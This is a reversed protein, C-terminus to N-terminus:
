DDMDGMQDLIVAPGRMEVGRLDALGGSGRGDGRPHVNGCAPHDGDTVVQVIDFEELPSTKSDGHTISMRLCLGGGIVNGAREGVVADDLCDLAEQQPSSFAQVRTEVTPEPISSRMLWGMRLVSRRMRRGNVSVSACITCRSAPDGSTAYLVVFM